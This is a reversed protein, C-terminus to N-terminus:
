LKVDLSLQQVMDNLESQVQQRKTELDAMERRLAELRTEQDALQQMYRQTLAKEEAGGKLAKMNERLRQQDEFIRNIEKQRQDIQAQFKAVENKQTVIKRLAQEVDANITNQQLFLAIHDDTLSSLEYQTFLPRTEKVVLKETKKREVTIRVGFPLSTNPIKAEIASNSRSSIRSRTRDPSAAAFALPLRSPLGL